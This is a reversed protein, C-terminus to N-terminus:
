LQQFTGREGRRYILPSVKPPLAKIRKDLMVARKHRGKENLDESADMKIIKVGEAEMDQLMDQYCTRLMNLHSMNGMEDNTGRKELRSLSTYLPAEMWIILDPLVCGELLAARVERYLRAEDMELEGFLYSVSAFVKDSWISRDYLVPVGSPPLDRWVRYRELLFGLQRRFGKGYVVSEFCGGYGLLMMDNILTSKGVGLLGEICIRM